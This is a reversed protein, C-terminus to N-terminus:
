RGVMARALVSRAGVVALRGFLRRIGEVVGERAL